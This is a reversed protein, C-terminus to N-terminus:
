YSSVASVASTITVVERLFGRATQVLLATSDRNFKITTDIALNLM